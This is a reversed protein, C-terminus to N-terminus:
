RRGSNWQADRDAAIRAMSRRTLVSSDEQRATLKLAPGSRVVLWVDKGGESRIKFLHWEGKLKKGKLRVHLSGEGYGGKLLQYTGLDWVMVTGGGYQGQPIIGEFKLYDLPHDEVAFASRKVGPETPLGKPVAWSKLTGGMELRFDYHLHSAAHKQIVFRRAPGPAAEPRRPAPEATQRFDRKRRYEQLSGAPEAAEAPPAVKRVFDKPLRQKTKLVPAFLDGQRSLRRLAEEPIFFLSELRRARKLEEWSVPVSVFPEERKARLSYACVTTKSGSNQSWDILIRGQRVSKAMNSVVRDPHQRELLSAVAHAFPGTAEYSGPTNLPVYLQLGKSGSVKPWAELKLGALLERLLFGVEACDRLDTGPGPDLDFVVATPTDLRPVRHLFTHLEIAALNACWALTDADNIVIYDVTGEHQRRPVPFTRIWDPTFRPANKEYFSEGGVGDPFRILTVPRDRLHPLIWRSAEIYYRVLDGKTFRPRPFFVKELHTLNVRSKM